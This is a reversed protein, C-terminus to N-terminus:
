MRCEPAQHPGRSLRTRVSTRLVWLVSRETIKDNKYDSSKDNDMVVAVSGKHHLPIISYPGWVLSLDDVDFQPKNEIYRKVNSTMQQQVM